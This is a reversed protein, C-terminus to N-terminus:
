KELREFGGVFRGTLVQGPGDLWDGLRAVFASLHTSEAHEKSM